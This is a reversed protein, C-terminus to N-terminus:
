VKHVTKEKMIGDFRYQHEITIGLYDRVERALEAIDRGDTDIDTFIRRGLIAPYIIESLSEHYGQALRIIQLTNSSLRAFEYDPLRRFQNVMDEIDPPEPFFFVALPIHLYRYALEELSTYSPAKEGSEWMRLEDPNRKMSTALEEITLGSRDRAWTIIGPNIYTTM